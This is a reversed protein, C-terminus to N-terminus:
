STRRRRPSSSSPGEGSGAEGVVDIGDVEAFLARLGQRYVPHDDCIVVRLPADTM